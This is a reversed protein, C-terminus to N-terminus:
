TFDLRSRFSLYYEKLYTYPNYLKKQSKAIMEEMSDCRDCIVWNYKEIIAKNKEFFDEYYKDANDINELHSHGKVRKM